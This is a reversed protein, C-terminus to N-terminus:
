CQFHGACPVLVTGTTDACNRDRYSLERDSHKCCAAAHRPDFRGHRQCAYDAAVLRAAVGPRPLAMYIEVVSWIQCMSAAASAGNDAFSVDECSGMAQLCKVASQDKCFQNGFRLRVTSIFLSIRENVSTNVCCDKFPKRSDRKTTLM